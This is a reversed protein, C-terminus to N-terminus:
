ENDSSELNLSNPREDQKKYKRTKLLVRGESGLRIGFTRRTALKVVSCRAALRSEEDLATPSAARSGRIRPRHRDGAEGLVGESGSSARSSGRGREAQRSRQEMM